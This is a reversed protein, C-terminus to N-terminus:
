LAPATRIGPPRRRITRPTTSLFGLGQTGEVLVKKGSDVASNAEASVDTIFPRLWAETAALDKALHVDAGRLARRAM